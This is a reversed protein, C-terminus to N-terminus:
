TLTLLFLTYNIFYCEVERERSMKEQTEVNHCQDVQDAKLSSM